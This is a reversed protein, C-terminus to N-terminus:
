MGKKRKQLLENIEKADKRIKAATTIVVFLYIVVAMMVLYWVPFAPFWNFIAGCILLVLIIFCVDVLFELIFYRIEFKHRLFLGINIVINAGFIEFILRVNINEAGALVLYFALIVLAAGTSFVIRTIIKKM